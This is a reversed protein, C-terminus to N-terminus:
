ETYRECEEINDYDARYLFFAAIMHSNPEEFAITCEHPSYQSDCSNIYAIHGDWPIRPYIFKNTRYVLRYEYAKFNVAPIWSVAVVTGIPGVFRDGNAAIFDKIGGIYKKILHFEFSSTYSVYIDM